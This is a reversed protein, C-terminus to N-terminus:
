LKKQMQEKNMETILNQQMTRALAESDVELGAKRKLQHCYGLLHICTEIEKAYPHPLDKIQQARRAADEKCEAEREVIRSKQTQLTQVHFILDRQVEYDYRAHFYDDRM